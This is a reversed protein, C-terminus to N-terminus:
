NVHPTSCCVGMFPDHKGVYPHVTYAAGNIGISICLSCSCLRQEWNSMQAPAGSHLCHSNLATSGCPHLIPLLLKTRATEANWSVDNPGGVCLHVSCRHMWYAPLPLRRMPTHQLVGRTFSAKFHNYHRM